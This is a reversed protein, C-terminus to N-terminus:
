DEHKNHYFTMNPKYFTWNSDVKFHVVIFVTKM